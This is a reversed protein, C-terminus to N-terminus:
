NYLTKYKGTIFDKAKLTQQGNHVLSFSENKDLETKLQRSVTALKKSGTGKIRLILLRATNGHQLENLLLQVNKDGHDSPMFQTVDSVVRLSSTLYTLCLILLGSWIIYATITTRQM